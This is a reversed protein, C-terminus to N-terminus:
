LFDSLACQGDEQAHKLFISGLIDLNGFSYDLSEAQETLNFLHIAPYTADRNLGVADVHQGLPRKPCGTLSSEPRRLM